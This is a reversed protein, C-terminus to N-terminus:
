LTMDNSKVLLFTTNILGIKCTYINRLICYYIILLIVGSHWEINKSLEGNFKQFPIIWRTPKTQHVIQRSGFVCARVCARVCVCVCVCVRLCVCAPVCVRMCVRIWDCVVTNVTVKAGHYESTCQLFTTYQHSHRINGWVNAVNYRFFLCSMVVKILKNLNNLSVQSRAVARVAM